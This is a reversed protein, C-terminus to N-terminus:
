RHSGLMESLYQLLACKIYIFLCHFQLSLCYFLFFFSSYISNFDLLHERAHKCSTQTCYVISSLSIVKGCTWVCPCVNSECVLKEAQSPLSLFLQLDVLVFCRFFLLLSVLWFIAASVYTCCQVHEYLFRSDSSFSFLVRYIFIGICAFLSQKKLFRLFCLIARLYSM